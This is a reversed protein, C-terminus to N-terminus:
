FRLVFELGGFQRGVLPAVNVTGAGPRARSRKLRHAGVALLSIGVHLGIVGIVAGAYVLSEGLRGRQDIREVQGQYDIDAPNLSEVERQAAAQVGFGAGFLGVGILGVTSVVGGSVLLGIGKPRRTQFEETIDMEQPDPSRTTPALPDAVQRLNLAETLNLAIVQGSQEVITATSEDAAALRGRVTRGDRISVEM